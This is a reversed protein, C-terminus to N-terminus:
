GVFGTKITFASTAGNRNRDAQSRCRRPPRRALCTFPDRWGQLACPASGCVSRAIARRQLPIRQGGNPTSLAGFKARQSSRGAVAYVVHFFPRWLPAVGAYSARLIEQSRVGNSRYANDATQPVSRELNRESHTVAPSPTCLMSSRDGSPHSGLTRLACFKKRVSRVSGASWTYAAPCPRYRTVAYVVLFFSDGPSRSRLTRLACSEAVGSRADKARQGGVVHVCCPPPHGCAGRAYVHGEWHAGNHVWPSLPALRVWRFTCAPCSAGFGPTCTARGGTVVSTAVAHHHLHVAAQASPSRAALARKAAAMTDLHPLCSPSSHVLRRESLDDACIMRVNWCAAGAGGCSVICTRFLAGNVLHPM